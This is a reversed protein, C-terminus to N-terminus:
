CEVEHTASRRSVYALRVLHAAEEPTVFGKLYVILPDNSFTYIQPGIPTKGLIQRFYQTPNFGALILASLAALAPILIFIARWASFYAM